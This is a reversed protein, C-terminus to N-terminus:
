KRSVRVPEGLRVADAVYGKAINNAKGTAQQKAMPDDTGTTIYVEFIKGDVYIPWALEKDLGMAM